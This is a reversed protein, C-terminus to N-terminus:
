LNETVQFFIDKIQLPPVLQYTQIGLKAANEIHILLDDVFLTEEPVLNSDKLVYEFIKIDPKSMHLTHSYYVKEFLESLNAIGHDKKLHNNYVIEHMANTNSLLFVRYKLKLKMITDISGDIFGGIMANWADAIVHDPINNGSAKRIESIFQEPRITGIEFHYFFPYRAFVIDLDDIQPIGFEKFAIITKELHIELIVRGLDLIINKINKLDIM